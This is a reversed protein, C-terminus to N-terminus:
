PDGVSVQPIKPERVTELHGAELEAKFAGMDAEDKLFCGMTETVLDHDLRQANLAVLANAWDLTEAVGPVKSLNMTRAAQIVRTVDASLM